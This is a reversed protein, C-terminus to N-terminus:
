IIVSKLKIGVFIYNGDRAEVEGVGPFSRVRKYFSNRSETKFGEELCYKAYATFLMQREIRNGVDLECKDQVFGAIPDNWKQYEALAKKVTDPETFVKNEQLRRLGKLARNLLGSLEEPTTLKNILGKDAKTGLFQYPFPIICLRRYFAFTRDPSRPIDNASYILRAFPRFFFVPKFKREADIQDGSVITKFYASSQLDNADLDAFLNILGTLECRKWRSDDLEQLPVKSVNLPGVFEETLNLYVSKGNSGSGTLVLARQQEVSPTILYGFWEEALDLCDPPLTTQLFRDIEPCKATPDFTVPIRLTSLYHPSHPILKFNGSQGDIMGNKVNILGRFLNLEDQEKFTMDMVHAVVESVTYTNASYHLKERCKRRAFAEGNQAYFGDQYAYLQEGAYVFHYESVLEDALLKPVFAKGQFYKGSDGKAQKPSLICDDSCFQQVIENACGRSYYSKGGRGSYGASVTEEIEADDLPPTNKKNWSLLTALTFSQPVSDARFHRALTYAVVSRVEGSVGKMMKQACPMLNSWEDDPQQSDPAIAPIAKEGDATQQQEVNAKNSADIEKEM